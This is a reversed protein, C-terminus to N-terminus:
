ARHQVALADYARRVWRQYDTNQFRDRASGTNWAEAILEVSPTIGHSVLDRAIAGLKKLVYPRVVNVSCALDIWPGRYGFRWCESSMIQWPGVSCCAFVGWARFAEVVEARFLRGTGRLVKGEIGFTSGEPMYSEEFNMGGLSCGSTEVMAIADLLTPVHIGSMGALEPVLVADAV